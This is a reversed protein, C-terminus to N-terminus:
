GDGALKRLARVHESLARRGPPTLAAWSRRADMVDKHIRIYGAAELRAMHKSLVSESVALEERIVRFEAEELPSLFACIRLRIPAHITPDLGLGSM